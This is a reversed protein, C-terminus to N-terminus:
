KHCPPPPKAFDIPLFFAGGEELIWPFFDGGGWSVTPFIQGGGVQKLFVHKKHQQVAGVVTIICTIGSECFFLKCFNCTLSFREGGFFYALFFDGGGM